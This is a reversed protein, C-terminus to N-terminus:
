RTTRRAGNSNGKAPERLILYLGIGILTFVILVKSAVIVSIILGILTGTVATILGVVGAILGTILGIIAGIVGTLIAIGLFRALIAVLLTKM